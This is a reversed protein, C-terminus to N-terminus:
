RRWTRHDYAGHLHVHTNKGIPQGALITPGRRGIGTPTGGFVAQEGGKRWDPYGYYGSAHQEAMEEEQLGREQEAYEHGGPMPQGESSGLIKSVLAQVDPPLDKFEMPPKDPGEKHRWGSTSPDIHVEPDGFHYAPGKSPTGSVDGKRETVAGGGARAQVSQKHAATVNGEPKVGGSGPEREGMPHGGAGELQAASTKGGTGETANSQWGPGQSQGGKNGGGWEGGTQPKGLPKSSGRGGGELQAAPTTGGKGEIERSSWGGPTVIGGKGARQGVMPSPGPKAGGGSGTWKGAPDRAESPDYDHTLHIHIHRSM